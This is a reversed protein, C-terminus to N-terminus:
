MIHVLQKKKIKSQTIMKGYEVIKSQVNGMILDEKNAIVNKTIFMSVRSM